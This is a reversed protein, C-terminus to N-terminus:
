DRREREKNIKYIQYLYIFNEKLQKLTKFFLNIGKIDSNGFDVLKVLILLNLNTKIDVINKNIEIVYSNNIKTILLNNAVEQILYEISINYNHLLYNNIKNSKILNNHLYINYMKPIFKYIFETDLNDQIYIYM